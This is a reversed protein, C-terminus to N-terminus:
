SHSNESEPISGFFGRQPKLLKKKSPTVRFIYKDEVQFTLSLILIFNTSETRPEVKEQVIFKIVQFKYFKFTQLYPIYTRTTGGPLLRSKGTM